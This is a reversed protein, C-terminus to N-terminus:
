YTSQYQTVNSYAYVLYRDTDHVFDSKVRLLVQEPKDPISNGLTTRQAKNITIIITIILFPIKTNMSVTSWQSVADATFSEDMLSQPEM